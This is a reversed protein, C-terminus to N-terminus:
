SEELSRKHAEWGWEFGVGLPLVARAGSPITREMLTLAANFAAKDIGEAALWDEVDGDNDAAESLVQETREQNM